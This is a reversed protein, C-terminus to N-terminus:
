GNLLERKINGLLVTAEEQDIDGCELMFQIQKKNDEYVEFASKKPIIKEM